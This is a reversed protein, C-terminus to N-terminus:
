KGNNLLNKTILFLSYKICKDDWWKHYLHVHSNQSVERDLISQCRKILVKFSERETM